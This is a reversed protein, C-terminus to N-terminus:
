QEESKRGEIPPRPRVSVFLRPRWTDILLNLQNIEHSELHEGDIFKQSVEKPKCLQHWRRVIDKPQAEKATEVDVHLVLHYHNSLVAFAVVDIFFISALKLLDHEIQQRRHEYCRGAFNIPCDCFLLAFVNERFRYTRSFQNLASSKRIKLSHQPAQRHYGSLSDRICM